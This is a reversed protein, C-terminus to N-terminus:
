AYERVRPERFASRDRTECQRRIEVGTEGPKKKARTIPLDWDDNDPDLWESSYTVSFHGDQSNSVVTAENGIKFIARKMGIGYMGITPLDGDKQINPRGLSFADEVYDEPIGGCNDSIKFESKSLKLEATSGAFPKTGALKGRRQRMAGDVCNDILDLIADNLEIDRTLMSVFFRKTPGGYIKPDAGNSAPRSRAM